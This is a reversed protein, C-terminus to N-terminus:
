SYMRLLLKVDNHFPQYFKEVASLTKSHMSNLMNRLASADVKRKEECLKQSLLTM